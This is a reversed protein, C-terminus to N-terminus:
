RLGRESCAAIDCVNCPVRGGDHQLIVAHGRGLLLEGVLLCVGDSGDEAVWGGPDVVQVLDDVFVAFALAELEVPRLSFQVLAGVGAVVDEFHALEADRGVHGQQHEVAAEERRVVLGADDVFGEFVGTGFEVFDAKGKFVEVGDGFFCSVGVAVGGGNSAHDFVVVAAYAEFGAFDDKGVAGGDGDACGQSASGELQQVDGLEAADGDM